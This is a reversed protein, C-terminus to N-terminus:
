HAGNGGDEDDKRAERRNQEFFRETKHAETRAAEKEAKNRGFLIRNEGAQKERADRAKQKRFQRLNVIDSM